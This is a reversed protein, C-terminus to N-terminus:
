TKLNAANPAHLMEVDSNALVKSPSNCKRALYELLIPYACPEWITILPEPFKAAADWFATAIKSSNRHQVLYTITENNLFPMDCAITLWAKSSDHKFASLIGGLPGVNLYADEIKPLDIIHTSQDANCSIFTAKCYPSIMKYVHERQNKDFYHIEGKDKGMRTSKGGCLVLGNLLPIKM